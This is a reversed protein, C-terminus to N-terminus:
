NKSGASIGSLDCEVFGGRPRRKTAGQRTLAKVLDKRGSPVVAVPKWGAQHARDIGAQVLASAVGQRHVDPAVVLAECRLMQGVKHPPPTHVPTPAGSNAASGLDDDSLVWQTWGVIRGTSDHAVMVSELQHPQPVPPVWAPRRNPAPTPDLSMQHKDSVPHPVQPLPGDNATQCAVHHCAWTLTQMQGIDSRAAARVVVQNTITPQLLDPRRQATRTASQQARWTAIRGHDGGRLVKPIDLGRWQQPGSFVPYELLGESHSEEVLSEPNGLVGPVHRTIAEIMVMAAVEGGFLVYDGISVPLVEFRHAADQIVRDDIGEYRGCAFVIHPATSLKQAMGQHFVTGAPTTVLLIPKSAGFLNNQKIVSTTQDICQDSKPGCDPTAPIATSSVPSSAAIQDLTRGWPQPTMVMGAGGGAPSGDVTRRADDTADRLDHVVLSLVGSDLAKGILSTRLGTLYQPFITVVDIRM